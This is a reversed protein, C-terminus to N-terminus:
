WPILEFIAGPLALIRAFKTTGWAAYLGVCIGLVSAVFAAVAVAAAPLHLMALGIGLAAGMFWWFVVAGGGFQSAGNSIDRLFGLELRRGQGTVSVRMAGDEM